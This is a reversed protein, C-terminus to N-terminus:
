GNGLSKLMYEQELKEIQEFDRERPKFNSFRNKKVGPKERQSAKADAQRAFDEEAAKVAELTRIGNKYWGSIIKDVYTLKPRGIQASTKECADTVLELPMEMEKLWKDIYKRQTASPFASGQELANMVARYGCDFSATYERAAELTNVGREAWDVAVKEVYRLDRHDHDACYTLMYLIVDVPMRLWDYFGFLVNLDNSTLLKALIREANLFLREIEPSQKQYIALEDVTYRPRTALVAAGDPVSRNKEPPLFEIHLSDGRSTLKVLGKSEWYKWANLVDTELINFAESIVRTSLAQEGTECHRLGYIYILAFVPACRTMYQDVFARPM